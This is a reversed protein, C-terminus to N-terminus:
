VLRALYFRKKTGPAPNTSYSAPDFVIGFYSNSIQIVRQLDPTQKSIAYIFVYENSERPTGRTQVRRFAWRTVRNYGTTLVLLTQNDPSM